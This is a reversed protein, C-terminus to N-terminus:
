NFMECPNAIMLEAEKINDFKENEKDESNKGVVADYNYGFSDVIVMVETEGRKMPGGESTDCSSM